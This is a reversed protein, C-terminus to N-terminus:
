THHSGLLVSITANYQHAIGILKVTSFLSSQRRLTSLNAPILNNERM